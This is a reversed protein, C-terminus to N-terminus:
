REDSPPDEHKMLAQKRPTGKKKM